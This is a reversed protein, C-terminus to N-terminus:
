ARTPRYLAGGWGWGVVCTMGAAAGGGVTSNRDQSLDDPTRAVAAGGPM